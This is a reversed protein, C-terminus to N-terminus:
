PQPVVTAAICVPCRELENGAHWPVLWRRLSRMEKGCVTLTTADPDVAHLVGSPTELTPSRSDNEVLLRTSVESSAIQYDVM